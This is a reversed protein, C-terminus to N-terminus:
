STKCKQCFDESASTNAIMSNTCMYIHMCTDVCTCVFLVFVSGCMLAFCTKRINQVTMEDIKPVLLYRQLGTPYLKM